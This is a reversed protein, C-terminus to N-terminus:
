RIKVKKEREENRAEGRLGGLNACVVVGSQWRDTVWAVFVELDAVWLGCGWVAVPLDGV